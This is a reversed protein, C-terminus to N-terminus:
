IADNTLHIMKNQLNKLTFISSSTRVYGEKFWYGKLIGNQSTMLLYVRIDFKRKNFLLPRDIYLQSNYLKICQILKLIEM